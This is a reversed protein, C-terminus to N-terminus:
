GYNISTKVKRVIFGGGKYKPFSVTFQKQGKRTVAQKRNSNFNYHMAALLLRYLYYILFMDTCLSYLM